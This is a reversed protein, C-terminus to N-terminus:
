NLAASVADWMPIFTVLALGLAVLRVRDSFRGTVNVLAAIAFCVVAAVLFAAQFEVRM